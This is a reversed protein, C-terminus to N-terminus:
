APRKPTKGAAAGGTRRRIPPRPKPRAKAAAPAPAPPPPPPAAAPPRSGLADLKDELTELRDELDMMQRSLGIVQERSPLGLADITAKGSREAAERAKGQVTLFQDLTRGLAEAFAESQMAQELARSWAAIWDDLFQKWQALVQPDVPGGGPFPASAMPGLNSFQRWFQAPDPPAQGQGAMQQVTKMWADAGAEVQKRWTAFVDDRDSTPDAM